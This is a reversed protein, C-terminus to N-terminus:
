LWTCSTLFAGGRKGEKAFGEANDILITYRFVDQHEEVFAIVRDLNPPQTITGKQFMSENNIGLFAVQGAFEEALQSVEPGAQLCPDCRYLNISPFLISNTQARLIPPWFQWIRKQTGGKRARGKRRCWRRGKTLRTEGHRQQKRSTGGGRNDRKTTEREGKTLRVVKILLLFYTFSSLSFLFFVLLFMEWSMEWRNSRM